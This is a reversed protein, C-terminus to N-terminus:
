TFEFFLRWSWCVHGNVLRSALLKFRLHRDIFPPKTTAMNAKGNQATEHHGVLGLKLKKIWCLDM